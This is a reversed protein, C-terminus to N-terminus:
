RYNRKKWPYPEGLPEEVTLEWEKAGSAISFAILFEGEDFVEVEYAKSEGKEVHGNFILIEREKEEERKKLRMNFGSWEGSPKATINWKIRWKRWKGPEVIFYETYKIDGGAGKWRGIERWGGPIWPPGIVDIGTSWEQLWVWGINLYWSGKKPYISYSFRVEQGSKARLTIGECAEEKEANCIAVVYQGSKFPYGEVQKNITGAGTVWWRDSEVMFPETKQLGEVQTGVGWWSKSHEKDIKLIEKKEREIKKTEVGKEGKIEKKTEVGASKKAINEFFSGIAGLGLGCIIVIVPYTQKKRRIVCYMLWIIGGFFPILALTYFFDSLAKAM